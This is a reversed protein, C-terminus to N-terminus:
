LSYDPTAAYSALISSASEKDMCILLNCPFLVQGSVNLSNALALVHGPALSAIVTRLALRIRGRRV